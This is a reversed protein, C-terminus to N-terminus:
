ITIYSDFKSLNEKFGHESLKQGKRLKEYCEM